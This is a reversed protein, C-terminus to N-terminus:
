TEERTPRKYSNKKRFLFLFLACTKHTIDKTLYEIIRISVEEDSDNQDESMSEEEFRAM